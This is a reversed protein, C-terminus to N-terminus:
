LACSVENMVQNTLDFTSDLLTLVLRRRARGYDVRQGRLITAPSAEFAQSFGERNHIPLQLRLLVAVRGWDAATPRGAYFAKRTVIEATGDNTASVGVWM